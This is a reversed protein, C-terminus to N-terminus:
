NVPKLVPSVRFPRKLGPIRHLSKMVEIVDLTDPFHLLYLNDLLSGSGNKDAVTRTPFMSNLPTIQWNELQKANAFGVDPRLDRITPQYGTETLLVLRGPCHWDGSVSQSHTSAVPIILSLILAAYIKITATKPKM